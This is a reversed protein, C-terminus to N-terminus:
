SMCEPNYVIVLVVSHALVSPLTRFSLFLHLLTLLFDSSTFLIVASVSGSGTVDINIFRICISYLIYCIRISRVAVHLFAFNDRDVVHPRILSTSTYSWGTKVEASPPLLHDVECPPQHVGPFSGRYGSFLLSTPGWFPVPSRSTTCFRKNRSLNSARVRCGTCVAYMLITEKCRRCICLLVRCFYPGTTVSKHAASVNSPTRSNM